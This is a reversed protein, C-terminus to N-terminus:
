CNRRLHDTGHPSPQQDGLARFLPTQSATSFIPRGAILVIEIDKRLGMKVYNGAYRASQPAKTHIGLPIVPLQPREFRCAENHRRLWIEQRELFGEVVSRRNNWYRM